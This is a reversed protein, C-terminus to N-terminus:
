FCIQTSLYLCFNPEAMHYKKKCIQICVKKPHMAKVPRCFSQHSGIYAFTGPLLSLLTHSRGVSDGPELDTQQGVRHPTQPYVSTILGVTTSDGEGPPTLCEARCFAHHKPETHGRAERLWGRADSMSSVPSPSHNSVNM